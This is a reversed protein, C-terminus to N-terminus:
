SVSSCSSSAQAIPSGTPAQPEVRNATDTTTGVSRYAPDCLLASKVEISRGARIHGFLFLHPDSLPEGALYWDETPIERFLVQAFFQQAGTVASHTDTVGKAIAQKQGTTLLGKPYHVNYTPM